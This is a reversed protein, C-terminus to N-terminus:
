WEIVKYYNKSAFANVIFDGCWAVYHRQDTSTLM